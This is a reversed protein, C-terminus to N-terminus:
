SEISSENRKGWESVRKREIKRGEEIERGKGRKRGGERERKFPVTTTIELSGENVITHGKLM